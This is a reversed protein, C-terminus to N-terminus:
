GMIIRRRPAAVPQLRGGGDLRFLRQRADGRSGYMRRRAIADRQAQTLDPDPARLEHYDTGRAYLREEQERRKGIMQKGFSVRKRPKVDVIEYKPKATEKSRLIGRKERKKPKAKLTKKLLSPVGKAKKLPVKRATKIKNSFFKKHPWMSEFSRPPLRSGHYCRFAPTAHLKFQKFYKTRNQRSRTQVAAPM